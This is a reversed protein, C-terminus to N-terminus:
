AHNNRAQFYDAFTEDADRLAISPLWYRLQKPKVLLLRDKGYIKAIRQIHTHQQNEKVSPIIQEIYASLDKPSETKYEIEQDTYEFHLTHYQGTDL